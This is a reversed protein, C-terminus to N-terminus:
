LEPLIDNDGPNQQKEARLFHIDDIVQGVGCILWTSILELLVAILVIPTLLLGGALGSEAFVYLWIIGTSILFLIFYIKSFKQMKTGVDSFLRVWFNETTTKKEYWSM